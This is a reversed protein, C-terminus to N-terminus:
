NQVNPNTVETELNTQLKKQQFGMEPNVNWLKQKPVNKNIFPENPFM